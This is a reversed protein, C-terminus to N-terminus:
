ENKGGQYRTFASIAEAFMAESNQESEVKKTKAELLLIENELKQKELKALSTGLKLYHTIVQSSATGNRLQEEAATIALDIMQNERADPSLAPRCMEIADTSKVVRGKSM